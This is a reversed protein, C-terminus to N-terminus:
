WLEFICSFCPVGAMGQFHLCSASCPFNDTSNAYKLHGFCLLLCWSPVVNRMATLGAGLVTLGVYSTQLTTVWFKTSKTEQVLSVWTNFGWFQFKLEWVSEWSFCLYFHARGYGRGSIHIDELVHCTFYWLLFWSSVANILFGLCVVNECEQMPM